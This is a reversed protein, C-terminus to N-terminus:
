YRGAVPGGFKYNVRLTLMDIDQTVRIFAGTVIPNVASFSSNSDGM